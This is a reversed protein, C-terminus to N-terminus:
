TEVTNRTAANAAAKRGACCCGGAAVPGPAALPANEPSYGADRIAGLLEAEAASSDVSVLKEPVSVQVQAAKDLGTIAKTITSACHGCTMDPVRFTIM